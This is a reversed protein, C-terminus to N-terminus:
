TNLSFTASLVPHRSATVIEGYRLNERLITPDDMAHQLFRGAAQRMAVYEREVSKIRSQWQHKHPM